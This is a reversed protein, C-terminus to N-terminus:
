YVDLHYRGDRRLEDLMRRAAEPDLGGHETALDALTAEVAPAMRDADGCVYLHAGGELWKWVEAGHERLRHQVYVKDQQDRSWAYDVRALSGETLHQQLEDWAGPPTATPSRSGESKGDPEMESLIAAREHRFGPLLPRNQTMPDPGM